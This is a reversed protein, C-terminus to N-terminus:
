VNKIAVKTLQHLAKELDSGINGTMEMFMGKREKVWQQIQNFQDLNTQSKYMSLVIFPINPSYKQIDDYWEKISKMSADDSLDIVFIASSSGRFFTDRITVNRDQNEINWITIGVILDDSLKVYKPAFQIGMTQKFETHPIDKALEDYIKKIGRGASGCLLV